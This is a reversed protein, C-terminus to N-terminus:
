EYSPCQYAYNTLSNDMYVRFYVPNGLTAKSIFAAENEQAKKIDTDTGAFVIKGMYKQHLPSSIGETVVAAKAAASGKEKAKKLLGGLQVQGNFSFVLFPYNKENSKLDYNVLQLRRDPYGM